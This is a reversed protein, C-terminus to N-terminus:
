ENAPHDHAWSFNSSSNFFPPHIYYSDSPTGAVTSSFSYKGWFPSLSEQDPTEMGLCRPNHHYNITNIFIIFITAALMEQNRAKCERFHETFM